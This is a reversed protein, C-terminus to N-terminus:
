VKDPDPVPDAFAADILSLGNDKQYAEVLELSMADFQEQTYNLESALGNAWSEVIEFNDSETPGLIMAGLTVLRLGEAARCRGSAMIGLQGFTSGIGNVDGIELFIEM